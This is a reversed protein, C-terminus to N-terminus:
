KSSRLMQVLAVPDIVVLQPAIAQLQDHLKDDPRMLDLLDKDRSVLYHASAAVALNLYKEDKVDRQLVLLRPVDDLVVAHRRVSDLFASVLEDSLSPFREVIKPRLLVDRVERLM